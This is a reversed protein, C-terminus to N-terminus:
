KRKLIKKKKLDNVVGAVILPFIITADGHVKVQPANAKIKSWTVAEDTRAGSDSGDYEEGTNVYVAFEAGERFIQANLTYHKAVGGGLVIVGTKEANLAIKVIQKIDETIDVLFDPTRQKMFFIMDGFSGDTLAPCFVPIKNKYAWYLISEKSGVAKGVFEIIESSCLAKDRKLQMKYVEDLIENMKREFYVYRDNTVFINGIRNVGKESLVRGNSDFSGLVFPKLTKIVDEEIGGATTVLVDVLKHEVLYRIVERVGSSVMNSTYSLFITAKERRMAKIIEIANGLNTAQFGTSSYSKLFKDFDFKANFDYGKIHPFHDLNTCNDPVYGKLNQKTM